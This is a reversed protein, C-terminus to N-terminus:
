KRIYTVLSFDIYQKINKINWDEHNFEPFYADGKYDKKVYSIYMKNVLPLASKYVTAGGIIFKDRDFKEATRLADELNRCVEIGEIKKMERSIVINNREKLPKGMSEYTKRGMIVTNGLTLERFLKMDEPIRWPIQNDKGIVDDFTMAAIIIIEKM